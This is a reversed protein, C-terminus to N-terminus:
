SAKTDTTMDSDIDNDPPGTDPDPTTAWGDTPIGVQGKSHVHAKYTAAAREDILKYLTGKGLQVADETLVVKEGGKHLVEIVESGDTDDITIKHGTRTKWVKRTPTADTPGDSMGLAAAFYVPSRVNGAAFFVWVKSGADPVVFAGADASGGEFLPMAPVAWPLVAEDLGTMMPFVRVKIRGSNENEPDVGDIVEAMYMGPFKDGVGSGGVGEKDGLM